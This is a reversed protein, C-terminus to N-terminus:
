VLLLREQSKLIIVVFDFRVMNAHGAFLNGITQDVVYDDM